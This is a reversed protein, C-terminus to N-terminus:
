FECGMSLGFTMGKTYREVPISQGRWAQTVEYVPNLLNKASFKAKWHKGIRQAIFFDLQPAPEEFDDPEALGVLVLRRGVAGGSLTVRTGTVIHEWTIDGNIVYEPQDYLPRTDATDGWTSGRIAKQDETLPVESQICAANFGLSFERLTEWWSGLNERIEFEVGQVDAKEFNDFTILKNNADVSTKEIPDTIRKVFVSAAMLSGPRPYWELRLDYNESASFTLDPNGTFTRGRVVDSEFADAIERYTPRIVTKSWAGRLLLNERIFMTGAVSPLLDTRKINAESSQTNGTLDRSVVSLDTYESRIGGVLRLWNLIFWDGMGYWANITQEGMNSFTHGYNEYYIRDQNAEALYDQPDGSQYFPLDQLRGQSPMSFARQDLTRESRSVAVGTKIANDKENYSPVPVTLDLRGSKNKETLFRWSRFPKTPEITGNPNNAGPEALFQFIRTDPEDQTTTSLAGAWDLRVNNLDPFEHGGHLQYYRLNRQIWKLQSQDLYTPDAPNNVDADFGQIRRAEDDATQVYMFNFGIQHFENIEYGLGFFASWAYHIVDFQNTKNETVSLSGGQDQYQFVRAEDGYSEYTNKYTLGGVYGIRGEGLKHSNGLAFFFGSNLPSDGPIPSLQRSKFSNKFATDNIPYVGVPSTAAADDPLERTGDDMALWDTCGHDSMLFDDRLSAQTNYAAGVEFEFEFKDPISRSVINVSGGAFGGGMDPSFTKAVDMREIFKSPFLDLQVARRDPDASPIDVGNFTTSTYRDALGRIVAFKGDAISAGTVKSLAEAADGAGLKSIQDSGIAEIMTSSQQREFIIQESQETFEEATVEYEEMEYFEPRLNAKVTTNQGILVRVETAAASAYGSKSFRLVQEGPPVNKLEFRGSADTQTALTTGRVSVVVNPLPTGDWTSVVVGSVTGGEQAHAPLLFALVIM